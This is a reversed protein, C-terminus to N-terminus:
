VLVNNLILLYFVQYPLYFNFLLLILLIILFFKLIRIKRGNNLLILFIPRLIDRIRSVNFFQFIMKSGLILVKEILSIKLFSLIGFTRINRLFCVSIHLISVMNLFNVIRFVFIKLLIKM